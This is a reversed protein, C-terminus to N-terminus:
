TASILFALKIVAIRHIMFVVIMGLTSEMCATAYM